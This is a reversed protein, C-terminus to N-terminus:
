EHKILKFDFLFTKDRWANLTESLVALEQKLIASIEYKVRGNKM